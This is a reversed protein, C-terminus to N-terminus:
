LKYIKWPKLDKPWVTGGGGGSSSSSVVAVISSSSSVVAAVVVVAVSCMSSFMIILNCGNIKTYIETTYMTIIINSFSCWNHTYTHTIKYIYLM